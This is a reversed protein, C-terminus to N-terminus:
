MGREWAEEMLRRRRHLIYLVCAVAGIIAAGVPVLWMIPSDEKEWVAVLTHDGTETVRVNETIARGRLQWGTFRYGKRVPTPLVGYPEGYGLKIQDNEVTGGAPNLTVICKESEWRSYLTMDGTVLIEEDMKEGNTNYWGQFQYGEKTPVPPKFTSGIVVDIPTDDYTVVCTSGAWRPYLTVHTEPIMDQSVAEGGAQSTFWGLFNPDGRGLDPLQGLKQGPELYHYEMQDMAYAVVIKPEYTLVPLEELYLFLDTTEKDNLDASTGVRVVTFSCTVVTESWGNIDIATIELTHSGLPLSAFSLKHNLETNSLGVETDAGIGNWAAYQTGDLYGIITRLPYRSVVTGFLAHAKQTVRTGNALKTLGGIIESELYDLFMVSDPKVYSVTGDPNTIEYWRQNTVNSAVASITIVQGKAVPTQAGKEYPATYAVTDEVVVYLGMAATDRTTEWDFSAGCSTCKGELEDYQPHLCQAYVEKAHSIYEQCCQGKSANYHLPKLQEPLELLENTYPDISWCSSVTSGGYLIEYQLYAGTSFGTSGVTAIQEGASVTQGADVMVNGLHSYRTFITIFKGNKLPYDHRLVVTNGLTGNCCAFNKAYNHTCSRFTEEVIGDYSAVVVDGMHADIDLTHIRRNEDMFCGTLSYQGPAPWQFDRQGGEIEKNEDVSRAAAYSNVPLLGLLLILCCFLAVLQRHKM